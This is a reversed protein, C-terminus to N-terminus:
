SRGKMKRGELVWVLRSRRGRGRRRITGWGPPTRGNSTFSTSLPRSSPRSPVTEPTSESPSPGSSALSSSVIERNRSTSSSTTPASPSPTLPKATPSPTQPSIFTSSSPDIRLLISLVRILIRRVLFIPDLFPFVSGADGTTPRGTQQRVQMPQSHPEDVGQVPLGRSPM